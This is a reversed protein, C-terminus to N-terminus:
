MAMTLFVTACCKAEIGHEVEPFHLKGIKKSKQRIDQDEKEEEVAEEQEELEEKQSAAGFPQHGTPCLPSNGYM